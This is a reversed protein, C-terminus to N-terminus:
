LLIAKPNVRIMTELESTSIGQKHLLTLYEVMGEDPFPSDKQGFDTSLVVHEIGVARIQRVIEEVTVKKRHVTFYSHEIFAGFSVCKRQQEETYLDAPNDAHTVIARKVGHEKAAQLLILGEPAGVHGTAVVLNKQAAVELIEHIERKLTGDEQLLTLYGSSPSIAVNSKAQQYSLSDLTPMWVFKGGMEACKEVGFPNLGGVSRNLTIGGAVSLRPFSLKLLSARSATEFWHNKIVMGAMGAAMCREAMEVDTCKRPLVDPATHVHLDYSQSLLEKM